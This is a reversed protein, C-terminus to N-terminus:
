SQQFTEEVAQRVGEATIGFHRFLDAAKGSAGFSDIGIVRGTTGVYKWWSLTAGAVVGYTWVLYYTKYAACTVLYALCSLAGGIAIARETRTAGGLQRAIVLLPM